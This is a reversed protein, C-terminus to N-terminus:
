THRKSRSCGGGKRTYGACVWGVGSEIENSEVRILECCGCSPCMPKSTQSDEFGDLVSSDEFVFEPYAVLFVDSGKYGARVEILRM